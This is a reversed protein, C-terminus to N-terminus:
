GIDWKMDIDNDTTEDRVKVIHRVDPTEHKVKSVQSIVISYQMM